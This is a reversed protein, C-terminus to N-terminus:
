MVFEIPTERLDDQCVDRLFTLYDDRIVNGTMDLATLNRTSQLLATLIVTEGVSIDRFSLDLEEVTDDILGRVPMKCLQVLATNVPHEKSKLTDLLAKAGRKRMDNVRLDLVALTSNDLLANQLYPMGAPTIDNRSLDLSTLTNNHHLASAIGQTGDDSLFNASLDLHTLSQNAQM